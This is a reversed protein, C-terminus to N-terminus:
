LLDLNGTVSDVESVKGPGVACVTITGSAVQTRGADRVLYYPLNKSNAKDRLNIIEDESHVAVVIKASGSYNEWNKVNNPFQSMAMKYAGLVLKLLKNVVM